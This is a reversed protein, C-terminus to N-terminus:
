RGLRPHDRGYAADIPVGYVRTRSLTLQGIDPIDSRPTFTAWKRAETEDRAVGQGIRYDLALNMAAAPNGARAAALHLRFAEAADRGPLLGHLYLEALNNMAPAFGKEAAQRYLDAARQFDPNPPRSSLYSVPQGDGIAAQFSRVTQMIHREGSEEYLWARHFMGAASGGNAAHAYWVAARDFDAKRSWVHGMGVMRRQCNESPADMSCTLAILKESIQPFVMTAGFAAIALGIIACLGILIRRM